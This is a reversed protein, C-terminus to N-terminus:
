GSTPESTEHLRSSLDDVLSEQLPDSEPAAETELLALADSLLDRMRDRAAESGSVLRDAEARAQALAEEAEHDAQARREQAEADIRRAEALAEEVERDIQARRASIEADVRHAEALIEDAERMAQARRELSETLATREREAQADVLAALERAKKLTHLARARSAVRIDEAARAAALLLGAAEGEAGLPTDVVVPRAAPEAPAPQARLDRLERLEQELAEMQGALDSARESAERLETLATERARESRSLRVELERLKESQDHGASSKQMLEAVSRASAAAEGEAAALDAELAHLQERQSQNKKLTLAYAEATRQLLRDVYARDYGRRTIPLGESTVDDPRLMSMGLEFPRATASQESAM